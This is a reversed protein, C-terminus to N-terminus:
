EIPTKPHFAAVPLWRSSIQRRCRTVASHGNSLYQINFLKLNLILWLIHCTTASPSSSPINLKPIPLLLEPCVLSTRNPDNPLLTPVGPAYESPRLHEWHWPQRLSHGVCVLPNSNSRTSSSTSFEKDLFGIKFRGAPICPMDEYIKEATPDLVSEFCPIGQSDMKLQWYDLNEKRVMSCCCVCAPWLSTRQVEQIKGLTDFPRLAQIEPRDLVATSMCLGYVRRSSGEVETNGGNFASLFPAVEACRGFFEATPQKEALELVAGEEVGDNILKRIMRDQRIAVAKKKLKPHGGGITAGFAVHMSGPEPTFHPLPHLSSAEVWLVQVMSPRGRKEGPM